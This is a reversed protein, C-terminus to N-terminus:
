TEDRGDVPEWEGCWDTALTTPWLSQASPLVMPPRSRCEFRPAIGMRAVRVREAEARQAADATWFGCSLCIERVDRAV